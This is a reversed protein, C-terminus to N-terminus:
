ACTTLHGTASFSTTCRLLVPLLIIIIFLFSESVKLFRKEMKNKLKRSSFAVFSDFRPSPLPVTPDFPRPTCPLQFNYNAFFEAPYDRTLCREFEWRACSIDFSRENVIAAGVHKVSMLGRRAHYPPWPSPRM